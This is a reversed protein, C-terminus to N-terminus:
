SPPNASFYSALAAGAAAVCAALFGYVGGSKAGAKAAEARMSDAMSFGQEAVAATHGAIRDQEANSRILREIQADQRTFRSDMEVRLAEIQAHSRAERAESAHLITNQLNVLQVLM